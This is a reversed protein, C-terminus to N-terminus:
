IKVARQDAQMTRYVDIKARAAERLFKHKEEEFVATKLADLHDIYKKHAYAYREQAGLPDLPREQMLMSKLSKRYEAMYIRDAAAQAAADANDRLYDLAKEVEDDTIPM